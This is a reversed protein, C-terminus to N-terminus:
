VETRLQDKIIGKCTERCIAEHILVVLHHCFARVFQVLEVLFLRIEGMRHRSRLYIMYHLFLTHIIM